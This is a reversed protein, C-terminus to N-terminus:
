SVLELLPTADAGGFETELLALASDLSSYTLTHCEAGVAVAHLRDFVESAPVNHSYNQAILARLATSAGSPSLHAPQRANLRRLGVIAVVPLSAGIPALLAPPLHLYQQCSDAVGGHAAIFGALDPSIAQAPLPLRLRPQTGLSVAHGSHRDIALVDDAFVCHGRAALGVTILSKGARHQGPFLVVGHGFQVAACHLTFYGTFTAVLWENFMYHFDSVAAAVSDPRDFVEAAALGDDIMQWDYVKGSRTFSMDPRVDPCVAVQRVNWGSLISNIGGAVEPCDVTDVFWTEDKWSIRTRCVSGTPLFHETAPQYM